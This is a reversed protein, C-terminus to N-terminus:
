FAPQIKPQSNWQFCRPVGSGFAVSQRHNSEISVDTAWSRLCTTSISRGQLWRSNAKRTGHGNKKLDTGICSSETETQIACIFRKASATTRLAKSGFIQM